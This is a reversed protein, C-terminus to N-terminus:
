ASAEQAFEEVFQRQMALDLVLYMEAVAVNAAFHKALGMRQGPALLDKFHALSHKVAQQQPTFSTPSHVTSPAPNRRARKRPSAVPVDGGNPAASLTAAPAVDEPADRFWTADVPAFTRWLASFTKTIVFRQRIM